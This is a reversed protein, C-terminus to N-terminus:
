VNFWDHAKGDTGFRDTLRALLFLAITLWILRKQSTLSCYYLRHSAFHWRSGPRLLVSETGHSPKYTSQFHEMLSNDTLCKTLQVALVRECFNSIFVLNPIINSTLKSITRPNSYCNNTSNLKTFTIWWCINIDFHQNFRCSFPSFQLLCFIKHNTHSSFSSFLHKKMLGLKQTANECNTEVIHVDTFHSGQSSKWQTPSVM